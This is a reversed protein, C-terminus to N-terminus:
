EVREFIALHEGRSLMGLLVYGQDASESMERQLTSTLRTARVVYSVRGPTEPGREMVMVLEGETNASSQNPNNRRIVDGVSRKTTITGPVVRYGDRAGDNLEDELTGTRTTAVLRYVYTADTRELAVLLEADESRSASMVRYGRAAAENIEDEMTSTRNAALLLYREADQAFATSSLAVVVITALTRVTSPM